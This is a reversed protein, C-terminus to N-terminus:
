AFEASVFVTLQFAWPSTRQRDIPTCRVDQRSIRGRTDSLDRSGTALMAHKMAAEIAEAGSNAFYRYYDGAHM